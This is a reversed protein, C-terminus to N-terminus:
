QKEKCDIKYYQVAYPRIEVGANWRVWEVDKAVYANAKTPKHEKIWSVKREKWHGWWIYATRSDTLEFARPPGVPVADIRKRRSDFLGSGDSRCVLEELRGILKRKTM